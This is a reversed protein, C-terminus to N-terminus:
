SGASTGFGGYLDSSQRGAHLLGIVEEDSTQSFDDYWTGVSFFPRPTIACVVEDAVEKLAECTQMPAVPVAVVIEAPGALRLAKVAVKMSAGTALGDDVLIAIRGKLDPKPREGRYTRERANLEETEQRLVAQIAKESIGEAVRSNLEVIDNSAVAGMALEEHGPVGLKRVLFVDFDLNLKRAVEFAVPVGGRALGLVIVDPRNRYKVLRRALHVGAQHRNAYLTDM